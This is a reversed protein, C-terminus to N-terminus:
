KKQESALDVALDTHNRHRAADLADRIPGHPTVHGFTVLRPRRLMAPRMADSPADGGLLPAGIPQPRHTMM